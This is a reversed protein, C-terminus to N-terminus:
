RTVRAIGGAIDPERGDGQCDRHYAMWLPEVHSFHVGLRADLIHGIHSKGSGNPGLLIGFM